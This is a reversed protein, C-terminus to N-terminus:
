SGALHLRLTNENVDRVKWEWRFFLLGSSFGVAAVITALVVNPWLSDDPNVPTFCARSALTAGLVFPWHRFKVVVRAIRSGRAKKSATARAAWPGRYLVKELLVSLALSWALAFLVSYISLVDDFKDAYTYQTPWPLNTDVGTLARSGDGSRSHSAIFPIFLLAWAALLGAVWWAHVRVSIKTTSVTTQGRQLYEGRQREYSSNTNLWLMIGAASLCVIILATIGVANDGDTASLSRVAGAPYEAGTVWVVCSVFGLLEVAFLGVVWSLQRARAAPPAYWYVLNFGLMSGFVLVLMLWAPAPTATADADYTLGSSGITASMQPAVIWVLSGAAAVLLLWGLALVIPQGDPHKLAQRAWPPVM